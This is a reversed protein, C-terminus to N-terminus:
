ELTTSIEGRRSAWLRRVGADLNIDAPAQFNAPDRHM